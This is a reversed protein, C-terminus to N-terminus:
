TFLLFWTLKEEGYARQLFAQWESRMLFWHFVNWWVWHSSFQDVLKNKAGSSINLLHTAPQHFLQKIQITGVSISWHLAPTAGLARCPVLRQEKPFAEVGVKGWLSVPICSLPFFNAAAKIIDVPLFLSMALFTNSLMACYRECLFLYILVM